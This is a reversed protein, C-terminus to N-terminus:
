MKDISDGSVFRNLIGNWKEIMQIEGMLRLSDDEVNYFELKDDTKNKERFAMVLELKDTAKLEGKEGATRSHNVVYTEELGSLDLMRSFNEERKKRVFFLKKKGADMGIAVNGCADSHTLECHNHLAINVLSKKLSSQKSKNSRSMLMLSGVCVVIIIIGVITTGIDM